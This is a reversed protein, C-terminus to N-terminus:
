KAEGKPKIVGDKLMASLVGLCSLTKPMTDTDVYHQFLVIMEDDCIDDTEPDNLAAEIEQWTKM